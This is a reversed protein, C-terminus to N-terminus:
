SRPPIQELEVGLSVLRAVRTELEQEVSRSESIDKIVIVAGVIRGGLGYLPSASALLTKSSGDFCRIQLRERHSAQGAGLARALPGQPDKLQQGGSTWWGLVEGYADHEIADAAKCIRAVEDNTQCIRADTDAILVGVPLSDLVASLKRGAKLLEETERIQEERERLMAARQRFSSYIGVKLRLLEPDFPKTFYDIGGAEYGRKVHPDERYVATVFVIPVDACGPLAKIHAAAEYGDMIPMQVDMLIVAIDPRQRVIEIARAGSAATILEFDRDLVADLAVLNGPTDDVALITPKRVISTV